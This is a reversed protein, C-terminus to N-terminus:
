LIVLLVCLEVSNYNYSLRCSKLLLWLKVNKKEKEKEKKKKTLATEYKM